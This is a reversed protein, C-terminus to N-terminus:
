NCDQPLLLALKTIPRKYIETSTKVTVVRVLGDKGPNVQIVKALPWKITVLNDEQLVVIDGNQINHSPFKWKNHRRLAPLYEDSWHKWFHRVVSQCLYWRKLLSLNRYSLSTDPISELSKGILFHGPTLAEINDDELPLPALPRSNLCYKIQTLITILEEFTLKTDGVVREFHFKMSKVAAEWLGGFHPACEPIFRWEICQASCFCSIDGQTKQKNFFKYM